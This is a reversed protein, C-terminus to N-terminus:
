CIPSISVIALVLSKIYVITFLYITM